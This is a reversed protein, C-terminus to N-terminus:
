QFSAFVFAPVGVPLSGAITSSSVFAVSSGGAVLPTWAFLLLLLALLQSASSNVTPIGAVTRPHFCDAVTHVGAIAPISAVSSIGANLSTMLLQLKFALWLLSPLMLLSVVRFPPCCRCPYWFGYDRQYRPLWFCYPFCFLHWCCDPVCALSDAAAPVGSVGAATTIDSVDHDVAAAPVVLVDPVDWPLLSAPTHHVHIISINGRLVGVVSSVDAVAILGAVANFVPVLLEYPNIRLVAFSDNIPSFNMAVSSFTRNTETIGVARFYEPYDLEM